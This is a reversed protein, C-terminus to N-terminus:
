YLSNIKNIKKNPNISLQLKSKCGLLNQNAIIKSINSIFFLSKKKPKNNTNSLKDPNSSPKSTTKTTTHNYCHM